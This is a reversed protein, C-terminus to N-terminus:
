GQGAVGLTPQGVAVDLEGGADLLEICGGSGVPADPHFCEVVLHGDQTGESLAKTGHQAALPVEFRTPYPLENV